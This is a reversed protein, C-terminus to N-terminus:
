NKSPDFLSMTSGMSARRRWIEIEGAPIADRASEIASKVADIREIQYFVRNLSQAMYQPLNPIRQAEKAKKKAEEFFSEALGIQKEIEDLAENVKSASWRIAM